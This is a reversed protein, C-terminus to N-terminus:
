CACATPTSCRWARSCRLRGAQAAGRRATRVLILRTSVLRSWFSSSLRHPRAVFSGSTANTPAAVFALKTAAGSVGFAASEAATVGAAAVTAVLVYGAAPVNISLGPFTARGNVSTQTRTGSLIAGAGGTGAKLALTVDLPAATAVTNGASDQLAVAPAVPLAQAQGAVSAPQTVFALRSVTAQVTFAASEAAALGGSSAVLVYGAGALNISLGSFSAQGNVTAQANNTLAHTHM